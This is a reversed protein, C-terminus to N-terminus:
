SDKKDRPDITIGNPSTLVEGQFPVVDFVETSGDAWGKKPRGMWVLHQHHHAADYDQFITALLPNGSWLTKSLYYQVTKKGDTHTRTSRLLYLRAGDLTVKGSVLEVVAEQVGVRRAAPCWVM